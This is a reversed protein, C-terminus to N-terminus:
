IEIYQSDEIIAIYYKSTLSVCVKILQRTEM